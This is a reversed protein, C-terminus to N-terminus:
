NWDYIWLLFSPLFFVSSPLFSFFFFSIQNTFPVLDGLSNETQKASLCLYARSERDCENIKYVYMEQVKTPRADKAATPKPSFLSARM